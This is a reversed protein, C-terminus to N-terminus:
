ENIPHEAINNNTTWYEVKVMGNEPKIIPSNNDVLNRLQVVQSTNNNIEEETKHISSNRLIISLSPTSLDLSLLMGGKLRHLAICANM